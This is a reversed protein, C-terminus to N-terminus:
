RVLFLIIILVLEIAAVSLAAVALRRNVSGGVALEVLEDRVVLAANVADHLQGVNQALTNAAATLVEQQRSVMSADSTKDKDPMTVGEHLRTDARLSQLQGSVFLQSLM